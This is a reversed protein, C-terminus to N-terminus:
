KKKLVVARETSQICEESVIRYLIATDNYKRFDIDLYTNTTKVVEHVEDFLNKIIIYYLKDYPKPYVWELRFAPEVVTVTSVSAFQGIPEIDHSHGPEPRRFANCTGCYFREPCHFVWNAKYTSDQVQYEKTSRAVQYASDLTYRGPKDYNFMWGNKQQVSLQGKTKVIFETTLALTDMRTIKKGNSFFSKKVTKVRFGQSACPISVVLIVAIIVINRTM